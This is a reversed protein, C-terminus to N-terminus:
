DFFKTNNKYKEIEINLIEISDKCIQERQFEEFTAEEFSSYEDTYGCREFQRLNWTAHYLNYEAQYKNRLSILEGIDTKNSCAVLSCITVLLVLFKKM